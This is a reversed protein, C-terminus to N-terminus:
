YRTATVMRAAAPVWVGDYRQCKAYDDAMAELILARLEQTPLSALLKRVKPTGCIYTMVDAVDSGMWAPENVAEVTIDIYGARSLLDIIRKPDDFLANGDLDRSRTHAMFARLPIATMENLLNSQWCLFALRGGRRLADAFNRFAAAPNNFFMVGFSSIVVDYTGFRLSYVEADCQAFRVNTVGAENALRRGVDLMSHSLDLGLVSGSRVAMESGFAARAALITTEGFGCGVDLVRDGASIEAGRFLHPVIRQRGAFHRERHALWHCEM